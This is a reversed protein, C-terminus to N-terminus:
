CIRRATQKETRMWEELNLICNCYLVTGELFTKLRNYQVIASGIHGAVGLGM